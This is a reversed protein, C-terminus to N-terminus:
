LSGGPGPPDGAELRELLKRLTPLHALDRQRGASQKSRIVARLSATPVSVGGIEYLVRDRKLDVYGRTGSPQIVIDIRGFRTDLSMVNASRLRSEAQEVTTAFPTGSSEWRAMAQLLLSALRGLNAADSSPCIDVDQTPLPSGHLVAAFGGIVVYEVGAENLAVILGEADLPASTGEAM